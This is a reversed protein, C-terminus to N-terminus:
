VSPLLALLAEKHAVAYCIREWRRQQNAFRMYRLAHFLAACFVLEKEEDTPAGKAYYGRYYARALEHHLQLKESLFVVILPYGVELVTPGSGADDWDLLVLTGDSHQAVNQLNIEGHLLGANPAQALPTLWSIFTQLRETDPHHQAQETLEAIAGATDIAYPYPYDQHANLTCAIRGLEAWTAATAIPRNGALYEMVLVSREPTYLLSQGDNTKLLAPIHPFSRASLFDFVALSQTAHEFPLPHDDIKAVFLGQDATIQVVQRTPYSQFLQGFEVNTLPWHETLLRPSLM